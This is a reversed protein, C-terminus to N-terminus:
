ASAPLIQKPSPGAEAQVTFLYWRRYPQSFAMLFTCLNSSTALGSVYLNKKPPPSNNNNNNVQTELPKRGKPLRITPPLPLALSLLLCPGVCIENVLDSIELHLRQFLGHWFGMNEKGASKAQILSLVRTLRTTKNVSFPSSLFPAMPGDKM